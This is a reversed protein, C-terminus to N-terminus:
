EMFNIMLREDNIMLFLWENGIFNLLFGYRQV